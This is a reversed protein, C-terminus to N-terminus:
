RCRGPGADLVPRDVPHGRRRLRLHRLHSSDPVQGAPKAKVVGVINLMLVLLPILFAIGFVVMLRLMFSLFDNIDQLNAVGDQTFGLLVTIGKPLVYYGAAM